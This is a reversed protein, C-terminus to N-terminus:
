VRKGGPPLSLGLVCGEGIVRPHWLRARCRSEGPAGCLAFLHLTVAHVQECSRDLIWFRVETRFPSPRPSFVRTNRQILHLCHNPLWSTRLCM